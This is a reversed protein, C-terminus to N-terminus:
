FIPVLIFFVVHGGGWFFFYIFLYIFLYFIFLYIFCVFLCVVFDFLVALM